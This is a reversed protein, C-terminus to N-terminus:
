SECLRPAPLWLLPSSPVPRISSSRTEGKQLGVEQGELPVQFHSRTYGKPGGGEERRGGSSGGGRGGGRGCFSSGLCRDVSVFASAGSQSSDRNVSM